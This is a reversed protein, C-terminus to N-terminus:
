EERGVRVFALSYTGRESQKCLQLVFNSRYYSLRTPFLVM